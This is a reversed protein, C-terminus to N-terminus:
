SRQALNRRRGLEGGVMVAAFTSVHLGFSLWPSLETGSSMSSMLLGFATVLVALIATIQREHRRAIRASVYGGLLSFGLGIATGFWFYRSRPDIQTLAQEIQEPGMGQGALMVTYVIGIAVSAAMTGGLDVALGAIVALIPSRPPPPADKLAAAPPKDPNDTAPM